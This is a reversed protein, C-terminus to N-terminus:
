GFPLVPLLIRCAESASITATSSVSRFPFTVCNRASSPIRGSVESSVRARSRATVSPPTRSRATVGALLVVSRCRHQHDGLITQFWSDLSGMPNRSLQAAAPQSGASIPRPGTAAGDRFSNARVPAPKARSRDPRASRPTQTGPERRRSPIPNRPGEIAQVDVTGADREPVGHSRRTCTNAVVRAERVRASAPPPFLATSWTYRRHGPYPRGHHLRGSSTRKQTCKRRPIPLEVSATPQRICACCVGTARQADLINTAGPGCELTQVDGTPGTAESSRESM